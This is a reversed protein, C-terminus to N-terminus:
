SLFNDLEKMNSCFSELENVDQILLEKYMKLIDHMRKYRTAFERTTVTANIADLRWDTPLQDVSSKLEALQAAFGDMVKIETNM